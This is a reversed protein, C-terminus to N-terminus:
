VAGLVDNLKNAVEVRNAQFVHSYISATTTISSHGLREQILKEQIGLAIQLSASSHRLSHFNYVPLNYKIAVKKLIKVCTTPHMIKEGSKDLFINNTEKFNAYKKKQEEQFRKLIQITKEMLVVKRTSTLNKTPKIIIKGKLVDLSKNITMIRNKFDIDNWTLGMIESRRAGSDIALTILSQYKLPENKLCKLLTKIQEVDYCNVMKKDKKPRQIIDNPNEVLFGWKIAQKFMLNILSYYRLLTTNSLQEKRTGKRLEKYLVILDFTKISDLKYWGIYSNIKELYSEYTILTKVGINNECYNNIFFKSYDSFTFNKCDSVTGNRKYKKNLEFEKMKAERYTGEFTFVKRKRKGESNYGLNIIIRYKKSKSLEKIM